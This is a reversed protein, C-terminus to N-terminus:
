WWGSNTAWVQLNDSKGSNLIDFSKNNSKNKVTKSFQDFYWVQSKNGNPTKIVVNKNDVIELYKNSKM